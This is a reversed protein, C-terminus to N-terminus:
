DVEQWIEFFSPTPYVGAGQEFKINNFSNELWGKTETKCFLLSARPSVVIRFSGYRIVMLGLARVSQTQVM